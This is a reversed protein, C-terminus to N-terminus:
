VILSDLVDYTVDGNYRSIEEIFNQLKYWSPQKLIEFHFHQAM